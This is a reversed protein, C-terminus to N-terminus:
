GGKKTVAGEYKVFDLRKGTNGKVKIVGSYSGAQSDGGGNNNKHIDKNSYRNSDYHKNNRDNEEEPRVLKVGSQDM